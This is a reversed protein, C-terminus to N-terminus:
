CRADNFLVFVYKLLNWIIDSVGSTQNSLIGSLVDHCVEQSSWDSIGSLSHFRTLLGTLLKALCSTLLPLCSTLLLVDLVQHTPRHTTQGSLFHTTASLFHPTARGTGPSYDQSYNPWVPLSYRCVPLSSYCTWYRTLLGTLLKAMCSTLLPLCSTLLLVDLVQLTVPYTWPLNWITLSVQHTTRHTTQGSLFHTAASLFHTTARGTGPSYDQSYNPWVPLSYRCVPLSSYCTWYRSLWQIPGLYIGSLTWYTRPFPDQSPISTTVQLQNNVKIWQLRQQKVIASSPKSPFPDFHHSTSYFVVKLWQLGQTIWQLLVSHSEQVSPRSAPLKLVKPPSWWPFVSQTSPNSTPDPSPSSDSWHHTFNFTPTYQLSTTGNWISKKNRIEQPFCCSNGM